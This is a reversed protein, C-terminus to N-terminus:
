ILGEGKDYREQLFAAIPEFEAEGGLAIVNLGLIRRQPEQGQPSLRLVPYEDLEIGYFSLVDDKKFVGLKFGEQLHKQGALSFYSTVTQVDRREVKFSRPKRSRRQRRLLAM